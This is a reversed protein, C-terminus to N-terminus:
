YTIKQVSWEFQKGQLIYTEGTAKTIESKLAQPLSTTVKPPKEFQGVTGSLTKDKQICLYVADSLRQLESDLVQMAELGEINHVKETSVPGKLCMVEINLTASSTDFQDEQVVYPAADRAYILVSPWREPPSELISFCEIGSRINEKEVKPIFIKTKSENAFEEYEKDRYEWISQLKETLEPLYQIIQAKAARQILELEYGLGFPHSYNGDLLSESELNIFSM